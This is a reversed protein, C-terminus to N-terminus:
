KTVEPLSKCAAGVLAIAATAIDHAKLAARYYPEDRHSEAWTVLEPTKLEDADVMLALTDLWGQLLAVKEPDPFEWEANWECLANCGGYRPDHVEMYTVVESPVPGCNPCVWGPSAAADCTAKAATLADRLADPNTM